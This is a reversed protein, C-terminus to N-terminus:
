QRVSDASSKPCASIASTSVQTPDIEEVTLSQRSATWPSAAAAIRSTSAWFGGSRMVSFTSRAIVTSNHRANSM